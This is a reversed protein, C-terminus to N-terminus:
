IRLDLRRRPRVIGCSYQIFRLKLYSKILGLARHRMGRLKLKKLLGKHWVRDFAGVDLSVLIIEERKELATM